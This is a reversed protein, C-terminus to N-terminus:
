SDSSCPTSPSPLLGLFDFYLVCTAMTTNVRLICKRGLWGDMWSMAADWGGDSPAMRAPGTAHTCSSIDASADSGPSFYQRDYVDHLADPDVM